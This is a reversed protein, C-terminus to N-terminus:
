FVYRRKLPELSPNKEVINDWNKKSLKEWNCVSEYKEYNNIILREWGLGSIKDKNEKILYDLNPFLEILKVLLYCDNNEFLCLNCYELLDPKEKLIDLWDQAKLVNLNIKEIFDEGTKILLRRLTFNDDLNKLNIKNIIKKNRFFKKVIELSQSKNPCYKELDIREIFEDDCELMKVAEEWTLSDFDVEFHDVLQPYILFLPYLEMTSYKYKKIDVNELVDIDRALLRILKFKELSNWDIRKKIKENSLVIKDPIQNVNVFDFIKDVVEDTVIEENNIVVLYNCIAKATFAQLKKFTNLKM